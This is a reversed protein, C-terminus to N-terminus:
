TRLAPFILQEAENDAGLGLQKRIWDFNPVLYCTANNEYDIRSDRGNWDGNISDTVSSADDESLEKMRERLGEIYVDSRGIEKSDLYEDNERLSTESNDKFAEWIDEDSIGQAKAENIIGKAEKGLHPFDLSKELELDEWLDDWDVNETEREDNDIANNIDDILDDIVGPDTSKLEAKPPEFEPLDLGEVISDETINDDDAAWYEIEGDLDVAMAIKDLRDNEEDKRIFFYFDNEKNYSRWHNGEPETICWKTKSGYLMCADHTLIKYVWWGDNEAVLEAGELKKLKKTERGSKTEEVQALFDKFDAWKGKAWRDIDRDKDKQIKTKLKKFLDFAKKIEAAKIGQDIFKKEATKFNAELVGALVPYMYKFLTPYKM